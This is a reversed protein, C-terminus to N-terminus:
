RFSNIIATSASPAPTDMQNCAVLLDLLSTAADEITSAESISHLTNAVLHAGYVGSADSVVTCLAKACPRIDPLSHSRAIILNLSELSAVISTFTM